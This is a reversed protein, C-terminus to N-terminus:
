TERFATGCRRGAGRRSSPGPCTLRRHLTLMQDHHHGEPWQKDPRRKDTDDGEYAQSAAWPVWLSCESVPPMSRPLGPSGLGVRVVAGREVEGQGRHSASPCCILRM